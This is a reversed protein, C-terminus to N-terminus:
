WDRTIGRKPDAPLYWMMLNVPLLYSGGNSLGWTLTQDFYLVATQGLNMM